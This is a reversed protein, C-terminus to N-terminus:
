LVVTPIAGYPVRWCPCRRDVLSHPVTGWQAHIPSIGSDGHSVLVRPWPTRAKPPQLTAGSEEGRFWLSPPCPAGLTACCCSLQACSCLGGLKTDEEGAALM